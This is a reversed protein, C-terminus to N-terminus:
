PNREEAVDRKASRALVQAARMLGRRAVTAAFMEQGAVLLTAPHRTNRGLELLAGPSLGMLARLPVRLALLSLEVGFPCDLVRTRLRQESQPQLRHKAATREGLKRLLSDSVRAPVVLNMAGRTNLMTTEVSLLLVKEAAPMLQEVHELHQRQEFRVELSSPQWATQLERCIIHIVTELIQEEIETMTRSPIEGKGEGGLLVDILPYAISLDLQALASVGVPSLKCSALYTVEPISRLFEGYSLHEASVLAAAFEIRLYAGLSHTLNHAFTQHLRTLAQLHEQGMRGTLRADWATVAAPQVVPVVPQAGSRAARIMANIEEQSLM